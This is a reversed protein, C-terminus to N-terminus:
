PARAVVARHEQSLRALASDAAADKSTVQGTALTAWIRVLTLVVNRTDTELEDVLAPVGEVIARRLDSPPVPDLVEAPPPGSLPRDAQLVMTLLPALDSSTTPSPIVGAAYDDRLWEGYQFEVRPPYRWPRVDSQVVM